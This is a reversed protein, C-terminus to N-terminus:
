RRRRRARGAPGARVAAAGRDAGGVVTTTPQIKWGFRYELVVPQPFTVAAGVRVQHTLTFWPLPTTRGPRTTPPTGTRPAPATTSSSATRTTTPTARSGPGRHRQRRRGGDALDAAPHLQGRPRDRRLLQLQGLGVPQHGLRRLRRHRDLRRHAPLGRGRGGGKGHRGRRADPVDRGAPRLRHRPHRHQRGRRRPRRDRHGLDRHDRHPHQRRRTFESVTGRWRSRTASPWRPRTSRPASCSSRTRPALPPTPARPRSTSATSGAPRTPATM